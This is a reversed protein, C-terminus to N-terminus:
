CWGKLVTDVTRQTAKGMVQAQSVAWSAHKPLPYNYEPPTGLGSPPDPEDAQVSYHKKARARHVTYERESQVPKAYIFWYVGQMM